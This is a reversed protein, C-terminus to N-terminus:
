GERDDYENGFGEWGKPLAGRAFLELYKSAPYMREITQRFVEPKQSHEALPAEVVSSLPAVGDVLPLHSGRTCILLLEHHGRVYFGIGPKKRETKVWVINTKYEFGWSELLGSAFFESLLPNTVWIFLTADPAVREALPLDALTQMSMTPYHSQAAADVGTNSYEWPPDAYIVDFVGTPLTFGKARDTKIERRLREASWKGEIPKSKAIWAPREAAPLAALVSHHKFSLIDDRSSMEVQRAVWSANRLTGYTLETLIAAKQYRSRDVYGHREGYNLWDGIWWQVSGEMM